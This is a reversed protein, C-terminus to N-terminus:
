RNAKSTSFKLNHTPPVSTLLSIFTSIHISVYIQADDVYLSCEHESSNEMSYKIATPTFANTQPPLALSCLNM